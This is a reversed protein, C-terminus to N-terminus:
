GYCLIGTELVERALTNAVQKQSDFEDRSLVFVDLSFAPRSFLRHTKLRLERDSEKGAHVLLVDIDSEPGATGVARSGFLYIQEPNLRQAITEVIQQVMPDVVPLSPVSDTRHNAIKRPSSSDARHRGLFQFITKM